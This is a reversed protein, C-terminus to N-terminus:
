IEMLKNKLREYDDKNRLIRSGLISESTQLKPLLELDTRKDNVEGNVYKSKEPLYEEIFSDVEEGYTLENISKVLPEIALGSSYVDLAMNSDEHGMLQSIHNRPINLNEMRTAFTNRLTHFVVGKPIGIKKRLRGHRKQFNWSRKNDYGGSKIGKILYDDLSSDLFREVLPGIVPHIPIKRRSAETKGELVKFCNGSINTKNINCIEDLRMGSYLAVCTATFENEGILESKLFTMINENSWHERNKSRRNKKPLKINSFPNYEIYGRGEAWRFFSGVNSVINRITSSSPDKNKLISTVYDGVIKKDIKTIDRDGVWTIFHEIHTQKRRYSSNKIIKNEEALFKKSVLSLPSYSQDTLKLSKIFNKKALSNTEKEEWQKEDGYLIKHAKKAGHLEIFQNELLEFKILSDDDDNGSTTINADRLYESYKSIQFENSLKDKMGEFDRKAQQIEELMSAIEKHKKINAEYLDTTHLNRCFEDKGLIEKADSPIRMRVWWVNHRKKLYQKDM